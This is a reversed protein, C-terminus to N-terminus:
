LEYVLEYSHGGDKQTILLKGKIDKLDGNGSGELINIELSQTDASM